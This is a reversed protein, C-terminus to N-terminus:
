ECSLALISSGKSNEVKGIEQLALFSASSPQTDDAVACLYTHIYKSPVLCWQIAISQWSNWGAMKQLGPPSPCSRLLKASGVRPKTRQVNSRCHNWSTWELWYINICDIETLAADRGGGGGWDILDDRSLVSQTKRPGRLNITSRHPTPTLCSNRSHGLLGIWYPHKHVMLKFWGMCPCVHLIIISVIQQPLRQLWDCTNIGSM